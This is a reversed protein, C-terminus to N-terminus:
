GALHPVSDHAVDHRLRLVAHAGLLRAVAAQQHRRHVEEGKDDRAREDHEIEEKRHHELVVVGHHLISLLLCLVFRGDRLLVDLVEVRAPGLEVGGGCAPDEDLIQVGQEDGQRLRKPHQWLGRRALLGALAGLQAGGLQELQLHLKLDVHVDIRGRRLRVARVRVHQLLCGHVREPQRHVVQRRLRKLQHFALLIRRPALRHALQRGLLGRVRLAVHVGDAHARAPQLAHDLIAARRLTEQRAGLRTSRVLAEQGLDRVARAFGREAVVLHALHRQRLREAAPRADNGRAPLQRGVLDLPHDVLHPARKHGVGVRADLRVLEHERLVARLM